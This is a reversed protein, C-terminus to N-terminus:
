HRLGTGERGSNRGDETEVMAKGDPSWVSPRKKAGFGSPSASASRRCHTHSRRGRRAEVHFRGTVATVRFLGTDFPGGPPVDHAFM